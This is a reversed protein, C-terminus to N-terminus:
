VKKWVDIFPIRDITENEAFFSTAAHQVNLNTYAMNILITAQLALQRVVRNMLVMSSPYFSHELWVYDM